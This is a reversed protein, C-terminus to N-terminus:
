IEVGTGPEFADWELDPFTGSERDFPYALDARFRDAGNRTLDVELKTVVGDTERLSTGALAIEFRPSYFDGHTQRLEDLSM